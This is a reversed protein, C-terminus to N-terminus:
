RGSSPARLKLSAWLRAIPSIMTSSEGPEEGVRHVGIDEGAKGVIEADVAEAQQQRPDPQGGDVVGMQKPPILGVRQAHDRGPRRRLPPAEIQSQLVGPLGNEDELVVRRAEKGVSEGHTLVITAGALKDCRARDLAPRAM